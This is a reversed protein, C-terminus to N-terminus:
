TYRNVSRLLPVVVVYGVFALSEGQRGDAHGQGVEHAQHGAVDELGLVGGLVLGREDGRGDKTRGAAQHRDAEAGEHHKVVLAPVALLADVERGPVDGRQLQPIPRPHGLESPEQLYISRIICNSLTNEIWIFKWRCTESPIM